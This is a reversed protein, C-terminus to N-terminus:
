LNRAKMLRKIEAPIGDESFRKQEAPDQSFASIDALENGTLDIVYGLDAEQLAIMSKAGRWMRAAFDFPSAYPFGSAVDLNPASGGGVGNVAHCVVCGKQAFLSRGRKASALPFKVGPAMPSLLSPGKDRLSPMRDQAPAPQAIAVALVASAALLLPWRPSKRIRPTDKPDVM